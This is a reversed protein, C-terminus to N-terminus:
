IIHNWNQRLTKDLFDSRNFKRMKKNKVLNIKEIENYIKKHNILEAILKILTKIRILNNEWQGM